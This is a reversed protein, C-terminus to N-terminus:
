TKKAVPWPPPTGSGPGSFEARGISHSYQLSIEVTPLATPEITTTM